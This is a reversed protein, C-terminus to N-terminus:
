ATPGSTDGPVTEQVGHSDAEETTIPEGNRDLIKLQDNQPTPAEEAEIVNKVYYKEEFKKVCAAAQEEGLFEGVDDFSMFGVTGMLRFLEAAPPDKQFPPVHGLLIGFGVGRFRVGPSNQRSTKKAEKFFVCDGNRMPPLKPIISTM